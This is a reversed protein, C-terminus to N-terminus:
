KRRRAAEELDRFDSSISLYNHVGSKKNFISIVEEASIGKKDKIFTIVAPDIAGSRNGMVLGDLPTFGMSTDICVGNKVAACSARNGLHCTVIKLKGLDEGLM